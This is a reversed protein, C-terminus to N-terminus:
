ESVWNVIVFKPLSTKPDVVRVFAYMILSSNFEDVLEELGGDLDL